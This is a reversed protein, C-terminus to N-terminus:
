SEAVALGFAIMLPWQPSQLAQADLDVPGISPVYKAIRLVVGSFFTFTAYLLSLVLAYLLFARQMLLSDRMQAPQLERLVQYDFPAPEYSRRNFRNWAYLWVVVLGILFYMLLEGSVDFNTLPFAQNSFAGPLSRDYNWLSDPVTSPWIEILLVMM